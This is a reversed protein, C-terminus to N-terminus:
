SSQWGRGGSRMGGSGSRYRVMIAMPHADHKFGRFFQILQEPVLTHHKVAEEFRKKQARTPLDGHLLAFAADLFDGRACLAEIAYGRYLMRGAAGDILTISSRCAATSSFGPDYTCVGTSNQRSPHPPADDGLQALSGAAARARRLSEASDCRPQLSRIDVFM